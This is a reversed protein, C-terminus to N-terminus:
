LKKQLAIGSKIANITAANWKYSKADAHLNLTVELTDTGMTSLFNEVAIKKVGKRGALKEIQKSTLKKM